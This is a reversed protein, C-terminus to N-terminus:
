KKILKMVSSNGTLEETINLFYVGSILGNTNLTFEKGAKEEVNVEQGLVNYIVVKKAGSNLGNVTVYDSAPNPYISYLHQPNIENIGNPATDGLIALNDYRDNGSSGAANSGATAFRIIFGPNNNVSADSSFNIQVPYWLKGTTVSNTALLTDPMVVGSVNFTDMATTLNNWTSGNDTSYSFINYQAGKSSSASISFNFHINSYGTTPAYIYLYAGVCSNRIRIFVNGNASDSTTFYPYNVSSYDYYTSGGSGNDVISDGKTRVYVIGPKASSLMTFDPLIPNTLTALSDGGGGGAPLTQNFDWFHILKQQAKIEQFSLLVIFLLGLLHTLKAKM